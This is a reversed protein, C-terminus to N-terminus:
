NERFNEFCGHSILFFFSFYNNMVIIIIISKNFCNGLAAVNKDLEQDDIHTLVGDILFKLNTETLLKPFELIMQLCNMIQHRVTENPDDLRKVLAVAADNAWKEKMEKADLLKGLHALSRSSYNRTRPSADDTLSILIALFQTFFDDSSFLSNPAYQIAENLCFSAAIRLAEASRGARWVLAPMLIEVFFFM